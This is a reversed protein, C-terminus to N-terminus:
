GGWAVSRMGLAGLEWGTVPYRPPPLRGDVSAAGAAVLLPALHEVTPHAQRAGPADLVGALADPDGAALVEEVWRDFALAWPPAAGPRGLARLNHVIGGSGLVLVDEDRLPALARGLALWGAPGAALPLALQVVPVGADPFLKSLPVWVGHDFPRAPASDAGTLARVRAAVDPAGPAPYEVRYLEDPFGGFDYYLPAQREVGTLPTAAVWHASVVVIARPRALAAGWATLAAAAGDQALALTPAGHSIFGVLTTAMATM